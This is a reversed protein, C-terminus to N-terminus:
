QSYLTESSSMNHLVGLAHIREPHSHVSQQQNGPQGFLKEACRMVAAASTVSIALAQQTSFLRPGVLSYAIYVNPGVSPVETM